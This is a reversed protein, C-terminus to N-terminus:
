ATNVIESKPVWQKIPRKLNTRFTKSKVEQVKLNSKSLKQNILVKPRAGKLVSEGSAEVIKNKQSKSKLIGFEPKLLSKPVPESRKLIKIKSTKSYSNKM